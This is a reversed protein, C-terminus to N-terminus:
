RCYVLSLQIGMFIVSYFTMAFQDSASAFLLGAVFRKVENTVTINEDICYGPCIYKQM